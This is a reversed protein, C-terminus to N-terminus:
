EIFKYGRGHVTVLHREAIGLKKRLGCMTFDVSRVTVAVNPAHTARSIEERSFVQNPNKALLVLLNFESRRLQAPASQVFVQYGKIDITLDSFELRDQTQQAEPPVQGILAAIKSLLIAPECPNVAYDDAFQVYTECQEDIVRQQAYILIKTNRTEPQTRLQRFIDLRAQHGDGHTLGDVVVLGPRKVLALQLAERDDDATLVEYNQARLIHALLNRSNPDGNVLLIAPSNM